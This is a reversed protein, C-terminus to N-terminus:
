KPGEGNPGIGTVLWYVLSDTSSDEFLTDTPNPDESTVDIFNERPTLTSSRYVKYSTLEPYPWWSLMTKSPEKWVEKFRIEPTSTEFPRSCVELSWNNLAGTNYPVGDNIKLTWTGTSHEGNMRSLPEASGLESDYWGVINDSSGGSRNHLVVPTGSPSVLTVTLDNIYTHTIDVYVNVEYIDEDPIFDVTSEATRRDMIIQPVDTSAVTSCNPTWAPLYFPETIGSGESSTWSVAFGVKHGDPVSSSISIGHHPEFSEGSESPALDPYFAESRTVVAHWGTPILHGSISTTAEGLDQLTVALDAEEGPDLYGNGGDGDLVRHGIHQLDVDLPELAVDLRTAPGDPLVVVDQIIRTIYGTASIEISYTGPLLMRHYDGVDPDAYVEHDIGTVKITAALPTVTQADTVIGRVGEHVREFFALMSEQNESWYTPLYDALPWKPNSVEVTLDIDGHWVYNWDQLGGYIVYWDAGNCVGNNYSSDSNSLVMSPNNDAYTRAISVYHSDDPTPTYVSSHAANGDYGYNSVLAGGHFNASLIPSHTFGWEMVAATEPQRGETTDIPDEIRDPFNRNLDFWNANYRQHMATGDPNMSPLIWIEITDVMDTIRPDIGYEDTLLNILEMCNEKGVVEDGHMAAIYRVEPEDEEISANDTIKMMWLERGQVSQGISYLETIDPHDDAIEHLELTLSEYTHYAPPDPPKLGSDASAAERQAAIKAEDPISRVEFGLLKLKEEEEAIIYARVKNFFVGDIDIGLEDLTKLDNLRDYILIEVPYVPGPEGHGAAKAGPIFPAANIVLMTFLVATIILYKRFLFQTFGILPITKNFFKNQWEKVM